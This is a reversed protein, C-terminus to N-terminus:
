ELPQLLKYNPDFPKIQIFFDTQPISKALKLIDKKSKWSIIIKEGIKEPIGILVEDNTNTDTDTNINNSHKIKNDTLLKSNKELQKNKNSRTNEKILIILKTLEMNEKVTKDNKDSLYNYRSYISANNKLYDKNLYELKFDILDLNELLDNKYTEKTQTYINNNDLTDGFKTIFFELPFLKNDETYSLISKGDMNKKNDYIKLVSINGIDIQKNYILNNEHLGYPTFSSVKTCEFYLESNNQTFIGHLYTYYKLNIKYILSIETPLASFLTTSFASDTEKKTIKFKLSKFTTNSNLNSENIPELYFSGFKVEPEKYINPIFQKFINKEINNYYEEIDIRNTYKYHIIHSLYDKFFNINTIASIDLLIKTNNFKTLIDTNDKQILIIYQKLPHNSLTYIEKFINDKTLTQITNKKYIPKKEVSDYIDTLFIFNYDEITDISKLSGDILLLNTRDNNIKNNKISSINMYLIIDKILNLTDKIENTNLKSLGYNNHNIFNTINCYKSYKGAIAKNSKKIDDLINNPYTNNYVKNIYYGNLRMNLYYNTYYLDSITNKKKNKDLYKEYIIEDYKCKNNTEDNDCENRFKNKMAKIIDSKIMSGGSSSAAAKRAVKAAAAKRAVKAAAAEDLAVKAAAAEDLAVKAVKEFALAAIPTMFWRSTEISIHKEGSTSITFEGKETYPGPEADYMYVSGSVSDTYPQEAKQWKPTRQKIGLGSKNTESAFTFIEANTVSNSPEKDPLENDSIIVRTSSWSRLIYLYAHLKYTGANLWKRCKYRIYGGYLGKLDNNLTTGNKKFYTLDHNNSNSPTSKVYTATASEPSGTPNNGGGVPYLNDYPYIIYNIYDPNIGTLTSFIHNSSYLDKFAAYDLAVKAVKAAVKEAPPLGTFISMNTIKKSTYTFMNSQTQLNEFSITCIYDNMESSDKDSIITRSDKDSIICKNSIRKYNTDSTETLNKLSVLIELNNISLQSTNKIHININFFLNNNYDVFVQSNQLLIYPTDTNDNIRLTINGAELNYITSKLYESKRTKDFLKVLKINMYFQPSLSFSDGDGIKNTINNATNIRFKINKDSNIYNTSPLSIKRIIYTIHRPKVQLINTFPLYYNYKLDDGITNNLKIIYASNTTTKIFNNNKSNSLYINYKNGIKFIKLPYINNENLSVVEYTNKNFILNINFKSESESEIHTKKIYDYNIIYNFSNLTKNINNELTYFLNNALIYYEYFKFYQTKNLNVKSEFRKIKDEFKNIYNKYTTKENIYLIDLTNNMSTSVNKIYSTLLNLLSSNLNKLTTNFETIRQDLASNLAVNSALLTYLINKPLKTFSTSETYYYYPIEYKTQDIKIYPNNDINISVLENDNNININISSSLTNADIINDISTFNNSSIKNKLYSKNKFYEKDDKYKSIYKYLKLIKNIKKFLQELQLKNTIINNKNIECVNNDCCLDSNKNLIIKGAEEIEEDSLLTKSELINNVIPNNYFADNNVIDKYCGIFNLKNIFNLLNKFKINKFLDYSNYIKTKSIDINNLNNTSSIILENKVFVITNNHEKLIETKSLKTNTTLITTIDYLSDNKYTKFNTNIKELIKELINLKIIININNPILNYLVYDEDELQILSFLEHKTSKENDKSYNEINDKNLTDFNYFKILEKFNNIIIETTTDNSNTKLKNFIFIFDTDDINKFMDYKKNLDNNSLLIDVIQILQLNYKNYKIEYESMVKKLDTKNNLIKESLTTILTNLKSVDINNYYEIYKKIFLKLQSLYYDNYYTKIFSEIETKYFIFLIYDKNGFSLIKDSIDKFTKMLEIYVTENVFHKNNYKTETSNLYLKTFGQQSYGLKINHKESKFNELNFNNMDNDYIDRNISLNLNYLDTFKYSKFSNIINNHIIISKNSLGSISINSKLTIIIHKNTNIVKDMKIKKNNLEIYNNPVIRKGETLKKEIIIISDNLINYFNKVFDNRVELSSEFLLNYKIEVKKNLSLKNYTEKTLQKNSDTVVKSNNNNYHNSVIKFYLNYFDNNNLETLSNEFMTILANFLTKNTKGSPSTLDVYLKDYDLDTTKKFIDMKEEIWLKKFSARILKKFQDKVDKVSEFKTHKSDNISNIIETLNNQNLSSFKSIDNYIFTCLSLKKILNNKLYYLPGKNILNDTIINIESENINYDSDLNYPIIFPIDKLPFSKADVTNGGTQCTLLYDKQIGINLKIFTEIKKDFSNLFKSHLLNNLKCIEISNYLKLESESISEINTVNEINSSYTEINKSFKYKNLVTNFLEPYDMLLKKIFTENSFCNVNTYKYFLPKSTSDQLKLYSLKMNYINLDIETKNTSKKLGFRVPSHEIEDGKYCSKIEILNKKSLTDFAASTLLMTKSYKTIISDIEKQKEESFMKEQVELVAAYMLIKKIYSGLVIINYRNDSLMTIKKFLLTKLYKIYEVFNSNDNNVIPLVIKGQEGERGFTFVTNDDTWVVTHYEGAAVGIVKKGALADVLRPVHENQRGGHGLRGSGGHGFTFLEGEDTWVATHYDGASAGIVNKGVLTEVLRPVLENQDGGHGLTGSYGSGFTFLQGEDTWVATHYYGAAAGVVKKGVLADVLRPVPESEGEPGEPGPREGEGHGLQGYYGEGCTLLEGADTWVATHYNTTSAGIVKKGALAEVLRPVRETQTGRHGLRGIYGHGFTFLEGEETWAATHFPSVAAGIVKKGAGSLHLIYPNGDETYKTVNFTKVLRPVLENEDGGHGLKGYYGHGFTFLEGAETWVATHNSGSSAGIVKKGELTIPADDPVTLGVAYKVQVFKQAKRLEEIGTTSVAVGSIASRQMGPQKWVWFRGDHSILWTNTSTSIIQKIGSNFEMHLGKKIVETLITSTTPLIPSTTPLTPTLVHINKDPGFIYLGSASWVIISEQMKDIRFVGTLNKIGEMMEHNQGWYYAKGEDTWLATGNNPAAAGVVKKDQLEGLVQKPVLEDQKGGHGLKGHAGVGFTFLEGEDTWVVTHSGGAAAGVVKKEKLEGLVRKPVFEWQQGGHGLRGNFGVGFTFLEGAETWVATHGTGAAAGVVKKEKLEGRVRKPVPEHQYGGHGLQGHGGYGFTFLEGEKTWVVTHYADAAAGVVKKDNLEQVLKPVLENQQGDKMRRGLRGYEGLGFTFLRGGNTWVATHYGSSAAGVFMSDERELASQPVTTTYKVMKKKSKSYYYLDGSITIVTTHVASHPDRVIATLFSSIPHPPPSLPPPELYTLITKSNSKCPTAGGTTINTILNSNQNNYFIIHSYDSSSLIKLVLSNFSSSEITYNYNSLLNNKGNSTNYLKILSKGNLTNFEWSSIPHFQSITGNKIIFINTENPRNSINSINLNNPLKNINFAYYYKNTKQLTINIKFPDLTPIKGGIKAKPIKKVLWYNGNFTDNISSCKYNSNNIESEYQIIKNQRNCGTKHFNINDNISIIKKNSDFYYLQPLSTKIPYLKNNYKTFISTFNEDQILNNNETPQKFYSTTNNHDYILNYVQSKFTTTIEFYKNDRNDSINREIAHNKFYTDYNDSKTILLDKNYFTSTKCDTNNIDNKKLLQISNCNDNKDCLNKLKLINCRDIKCSGCVKCNYEPFNYDIGILSTDKIKANNCIKLDEYDSCNLGNGNYGIGSINNTWNPTDQCTTDGGTIFTNLSTQVPLKTNKYKFYHPNSEVFNWLATNRLDNTLLDTSTIWLLDDYSNEDPCYNSCTGDKNNFLTNKNEQKQFLSCTKDTTNVLFSTCKKNNICINACYNKSKYKEDNPNINIQLFSDKNSVSEIKCKQCIQLDLKKNQFALYLDKTPHKLYYYVKDKIHEIQKILYFSIQGILNTSPVQYDFDPNIKNIFNNGLYTSFTNNMFSYTNTTKNYTLKWIHNINCKKVYMTDTSNQIDQICYKDIIKENIAINKIEINNSKNIMHEYNTSAIIRNLISSKLTYLKNINILPYKIYIKEVTIKKGSILNLDQMSNRFYNVTINNTAGTLQLKNSVLKGIVIDNLVNNNLNSSIIYNTNNQEVQYFDVTLSNLYNHHNNNDLEIITTLSSTYYLGLTKSNSKLNFLNKNNLSSNKKILTLNFNSDILNDKHHSLLCNKTQVNYSMCKCDSNKFCINKCDNIDVSKIINYENSCKINKYSNYFNLSGAKYTNNNKINKTNFIIYIIFIVLIIICLYNLM